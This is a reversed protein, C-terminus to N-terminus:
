MFHPVDVSDFRLFIEKFLEHFSIRYPVFSGKKLSFSVIKNNM